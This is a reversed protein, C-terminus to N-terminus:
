AKLGYTGRGVLAFRDDKILENHVTPAHSAIKDAIETFHLAGGEKKLLIYAKDRVTKPNIEAWESLGIDGYPGIGLRKSIALFSVAISELVDYPAVAKRLVENFQEVATLNKTVADHIAEMQKKSEDDIYWFSHFTENEGSFYPYEIVKFVFRAKNGFINKDEDSKSITHFEDMFIDDRKLGGSSFLHREAFEKLFEVEQFKTISKKVERVAQAELQRVRERTIGYKSGLAQLTASKQSGLAFRKDLISSSRGDLDADRLVKEIFDSINLNSLQM